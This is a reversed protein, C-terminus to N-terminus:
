KGERRGETRDVAAEEARAVRRTVRGFSARRDVSDKPGVERRQSKYPDHTWSRVAPDFHAEGLFDDCGFRQSPDDGRDRACRDKGCSMNKSGRHSRLGGREALRKGGTFNDDTGAERRRVASGNLESRFLTTYPFLTDTRTSRPPRRLM